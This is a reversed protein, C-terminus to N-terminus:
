HRMVIVEIDFQGWTLVRNAFPDNRQFAITRMQAALGDRVRSERDIVIVQTVNGILRPGPNSVM